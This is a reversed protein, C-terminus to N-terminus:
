GSKRLFRVFSSVQTEPTSRAPATVWDKGQMSRVFLKSHDATDTRGQMRRVMAGSTTAPSLDAVKQRLHLLEQRLEFTTPTHGTRSQQEFIGSDNESGHIVFGRVRKANTVISMGLNSKQQADFRLAEFLSHGANLLLDGVLATGNMRLNIMRGVHNEYKGVADIFVSVSEVIQSAANRLTSASYSKGDACPVGARAVVVHEITSDIVKTTAASM